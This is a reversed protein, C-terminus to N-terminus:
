PIIRQQGPGINLTLTEILRRRGYVRSGLM